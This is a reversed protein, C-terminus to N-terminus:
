DRGIGGVKDTVMERRQGLRVYINGTTMGGNGTIGGSGRGGGRGEEGRGCAGADEWAM